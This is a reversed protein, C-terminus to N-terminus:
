RGAAALPLDPHADGVTGVDIAGREPTMAKARGETVTPKIADVFVKAVHEVDELCRLSPQPSLFRFPRVFPWMLCYGVRQGPMLKLCVDGSGDRSRRIGADQIHKFPLNVTMPLAVGFRMVIRQSTITYVTTRAILYALLQLIGIAAVGVIALNVVSGVGSAAANEVGGANADILRWLCLLVFYVAVKRWHFLRRALLARTPAGRWLLTEGDTLNQELEVIDDAETLETM